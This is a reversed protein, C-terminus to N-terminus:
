ARSHKRFALVAGLGLGVLLLSGPEPVTAPAFTVEAASYANSVSGTNALQTLVAQYSETFQSTFIVTWDELGDSTVGSFVFKADSTNASDDTFTFPSGAGGNPPTCTHNIVPTPDSCGASGGTGASIFTLNLTPLGTAVDFVIFPAIAPSITSGVPATGINLDMVGNQGNETAFTGTGATLTFMDHTFTPGLDSFWTITTPTVTVTGSMSFTSGATIPGASVTQVLGAFAM